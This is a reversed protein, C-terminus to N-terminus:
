PQVGPNLAQFQKLRGEVFCGVQIPGQKVAKLTHLPAELPKQLKKLQFGSSIRAVDYFSVLDKTNNFFYYSIQRSTTSSGVCSSEIPTLELRTLGVQSRLKFIHYEVQFAQLDSAWCALTTLVKRDADLRYSLSCPRSTNLISTWEGKLGEPVEVKWEYDGPRVTPSGTPNGVVPSPPPLTLIKPQPAKPSHSSTSEECAGALLLLLLPILRSIRSGQFM